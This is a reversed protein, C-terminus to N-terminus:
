TINSNQKTALYTDPQAIFGCDFNISQFVTKLKPLRNQVKRVPIINPELSLIIKLYYKLKWYGLLFSDLFHIKRVPFHKKKKPLM